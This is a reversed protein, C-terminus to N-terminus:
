NMWENVWENMWICGTSLGTWTWIAKSLSCQTQSPFVVHIPSWDIVPCWLCECVGLSLKPGLRGAPPRLGSSVRESLHLVQLGRCLQVTCLFMMMEAEHGYKRPHTCSWGNLLLLFFNRLVSVNLIIWLVSIGETTITGLTCIGKRINVTKLLLTFFTTLCDFNERESWFSTNIWLVFSGQM